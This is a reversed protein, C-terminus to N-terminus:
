KYVPRNYKYLRIHLNNSSLLTAALDNLEKQGTWPPKRLLSLRITFHFAVAHDTQLVPRLQTNTDWHYFLNPHLITLSTIWVPCHLLLLTLILNTFTLSVSTQTLQNTQSIFCFHAHQRQQKTVATVATRNQAVRHVKARWAGRDMPNELCSYQLPNGHGGGPSRGSGPILSSDGANCASEKGILWSIFSHFSAWSIFPADALHSDPRKFSSWADKLSLPFSQYFCWNLETWNLQETTDSEKRGWSDCCALGGQGDGIALSM